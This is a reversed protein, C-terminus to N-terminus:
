CATYKAAVTSRYVSCTRRGRLRVMCFVTSCCPAPGVAGCDPWVFVCPALGVAGCDPWVFSLPVVRLLDSQGATQGYLSVRLLDSEGATQGYLLCHFLVSCTRSGRLRAMCFVTSRCVSCTRSGRLRAMCFLISRWKRRDFGGATGFTEFM